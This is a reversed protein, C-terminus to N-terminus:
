HSINIMLWVSWTLGGRERVCQAFWEGSKFCCRDVSRKLNQIEQLSLLLENWLLRFNQLFVLSSIFPLLRIEIGLRFQSNVGFTGNHLVVSPRNHQSKVRIRVAAKVFSFHAWGTSLHHSITQPLFTVSCAVDEGVGIPFIKYFM